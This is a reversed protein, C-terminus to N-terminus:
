ASEPVPAPAPPRVPAAVPDPAPSSPASQTGGGRRWWWMAAVAIGGVITLALTWALLRRIRLIRPGFLELALLAVAATPGSRQQLRRRLVMLGITTM